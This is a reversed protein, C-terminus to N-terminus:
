KKRMVKDMRWKVQREFEKNFEEHGHKILTSNIHQESFARPVSPGYISKSWGSGRSAGKRRSVVILKGSSKGRVVFTGKYLKTRGWATATVGKEKRFAKLKTKSTGVYQILNNQISRATITATLTNIRSRKITLAKRIKLLPKIGTKNSIEKAAKTKIKDAAKNIAANTAALVVKDHIQSIRKSLGKLDPGILELELGRLDTSKSKTKKPSSWFKLKSM